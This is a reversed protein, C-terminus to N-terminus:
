IWKVNHLCYKLKKKKKPEFGNRDYQLCVLGYGYCLTQQHGSHYHQKTTSNHLAAGIYLFLKQKYLDAYYNEKLYFFWGVFIGGLLEVTIM